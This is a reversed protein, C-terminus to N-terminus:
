GKLYLVWARLCKAGEGLDALGAGERAWPGIDSFTRWRGIGFLFEGVSEDPVMGVSAAGRGWEGVRGVLSPPCAETAEALRLGALVQWLRGLGAVGRAGACFSGVTV